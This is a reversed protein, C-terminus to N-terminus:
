SRTVRWIGQTDNIVKFHDLDIIMLSLNTKYRKVRDIERELNEQFKRRNFLSTLEDTTALERLIHEAQKRLHVEHELANKKERLRQQLQQQAEFLVGMYIGFGIFLVIVVIRMWIEAAGPFLFAQWSFSGPHLLLMETLGHAIWFLNGVLAAIFPIYTPNVNGPKPWLIGDSASMTSADEKDM